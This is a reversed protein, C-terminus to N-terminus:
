SPHVCCTENKGGEPFPKPAGLAKLLYPTPDILTGGTASGCVDFGNSAKRVGDPYLELHLM